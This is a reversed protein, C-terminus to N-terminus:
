EEGRKPEIIRISIIDGILDVLRWPRLHMSEQSLTRTGKLDDLHVMKPIDASHLPMNTADEGTQNESSFLQVWLKNM